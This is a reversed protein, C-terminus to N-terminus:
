FQFYCVSALREALNDRGIRAINLKGCLDDFIANLHSEGSPIDIWESPHFLISQEEDTGFLYEPKTRSRAFTGVCGNALPILTVGVLDDVVKDKLIYRLLALRSDISQLFGPWTALDTPNAV